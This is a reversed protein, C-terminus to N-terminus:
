PRHTIRFRRWVTGTYTRMVESLGDGEDDRCSYGVIGRRGVDEAADLLDSAHMAEEDLREILGEIGTLPALSAMVLLSEEGPHRDLQYYERSAPLFLEGEEIRAPARPTEPFLLHVGARSDLLFVYLHAPRNPKLHVRVLDGSHLVDGEELIFEGDIGRKRATVEFAIELPLDQFPDLPVARRGPFYTKAAAATRGNELDIIQAHLLTGGGSRPFFFGVLLSRAPLLRGPEPGTELFLDKM